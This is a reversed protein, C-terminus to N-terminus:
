YIPMTLYFGAYVRGGPVYSYSYSYEGSAEVVPKIRSATVHKVAYMYPGYYPTYMDLRVFVTGAVPSTFRANVWSHTIDFSDVNGVIWSIRWGAAYGLAYVDARGNLGRGVWGPGWAWMATVEVRALHDGLFGKLIVRATGINSGTGPYKGSPDNYGTPNNYVYAYRNWAAPNEPEPVFTDAQPMRGIDANYLRAKYHYIGNATERQQGTYLKDTPLTGETTRQTGYPYYRTRGVFGGSGDTVLATGGLHDAVLYSLVGGKRMAIRAGAAFYYKTVEGTYTDKEYVGGIYVTGAGQGQPAKRMLTGNADYYYYVLAPAQGTSVRYSTMGQANYDYM